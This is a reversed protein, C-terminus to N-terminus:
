RTPVIRPFVTISDEVRIRSTTVDYFNIGTVQSFFSAQVETAALGSTYSLCAYTPTTCMVFHLM